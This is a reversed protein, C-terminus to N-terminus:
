EPHFAIIKGVPGQFNALALAALVPPKIEFIIIDVKDPFLKAPSYVGVVQHKHAFFPLWDLGAIEPAHHFLFIDPRANGFVNLRVNEPM